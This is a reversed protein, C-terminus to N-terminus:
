GRPSVSRSQPEGVSTFRKRFADLSRFSLVKPAPWSVTNGRSSWLEVVYDRNAPATTPVVSASVLGDPVPFRSVLIQSVLKNIATTPLEANGKAAPNTREVLRINESWVAM